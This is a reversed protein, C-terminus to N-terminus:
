SQGPEYDNPNVTGIPLIQAYAQSGIFILVFFLKLEKHM